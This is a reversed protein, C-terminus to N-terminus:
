AGHQDRRLVGDRSLMRVGEELRDVLVAANSTSITRILPAYEAIDFLCVTIQFCEEDAGPCLMQTLVVPRGDCISGDLISQETKNAPDPCDSVKNGCTRVRSPGRAAATHRRGRWASRALWCRTTIPVSSFDHYTRLLGLGLSM